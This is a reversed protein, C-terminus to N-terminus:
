RFSIGELWKANIGAVAKGYMPSSNASGVWVMRIRCTKFIGKCIFIDIHLCYSLFPLAHTYQFRLKEGNDILSCLCDSNDREQSTQAWFAPARRESGGASSRGRQGGQCGVLLGSMQAPCGHCWFAFQSRSKSSLGGRHSRSAAAGRPFSGPLVLVAFHWPSLHIFRQIQLSM